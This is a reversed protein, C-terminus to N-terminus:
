RRVRGDDSIKENKTKYVYLAKIVKEKSEYDWTGGVGNYIYWVEYKSSYCVYGSTGDSFSIWYKEIDGYGWSGKERKELEFKKVEYSQAKMPLAFM